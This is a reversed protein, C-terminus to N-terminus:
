DTRRMAETLHEECLYRKHPWSFRGTHQCRASDGNPLLVHETCWGQHDEGKLLDRHEPCYCELRPFEDKKYIGLKMCAKNLEELGSGKEYRKLCSPNFSCLELKVGRDQLTRLLFEDSHSELLNYTVTQKM